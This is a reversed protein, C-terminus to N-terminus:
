GGAVEDKITEVYRQEELPDLPAIARMDHNKITMMRKKFNIIELNEMEWGIELLLPYPITNNIIEIVDFYKYIKLGVVEFPIHTRSWNIFSQGSKRPFTTSTVM